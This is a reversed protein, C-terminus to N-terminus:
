GRVRFWETGAAIGERQLVAAQTASARPQPRRVWLAWGALGQSLQLGQSFRQATELGIRSWSGVCPLHALNFCLRGGRVKGGNEM